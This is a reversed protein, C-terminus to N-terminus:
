PKVLTVQLTKKNRSYEPRVLNELVSYGNFTITSGGITQRVYSLGEFDPAIQSLNRSDEYQIMLEDILGSQYWLASETITKGKSTTVSM